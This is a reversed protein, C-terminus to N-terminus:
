KIRLHEVFRSWFGKRPRPVSGNHSELLNAALTRLCRSAHCHPAYLIFPEQRRIAAGVDPDKLVHGWYRIGMNMFQRCVLVMNEGAQAAEREDGAMNVVLGLQVEVQRTSLVKLMAYADTYATPEPTTVVLAERAAAVFALVNESIGAATDIILIDTEDALDSFQNILGELQAHGLNALETVGSSAPLIRVGEPGEVLVEELKREGFIVHSLNFRPHVDLLIDVNALSLDADIILVRKGAQAFAIALNSAINSKGVGGKGSTVAIIRSPERTEIPPLTEEKQKILERLKTAQDVGSM